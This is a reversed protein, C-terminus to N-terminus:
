NERRRTSSISCWNLLYLNEFKTMVQEVRGMEKAKTDAYLKTLHMYQQRTQVNSSHIFLLYAAALILVVAGRVVSLSQSAEPDPCLVCTVNDSDVGYRKQKDCAGCLPGTYGVACTGGPLCANNLCEDFETAPLLPPCPSQFRRRYPCRALSPTGITYPGAASVAQLNYRREGREDEKVASSVSTAAQSGPTTKFTM